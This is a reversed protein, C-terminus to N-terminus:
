AAKHGSNQLVKSTAAKGLIEPSKPLAIERINQLAIRLEERGRFGELRQILDGDKFVLLTPLSKIQYQSTLKLNNDANVRVVKVRHSSASSADNGQNQCEQLLPNILRCLGCWPAWFDVVVTSSTELVERTFNRENVSLM